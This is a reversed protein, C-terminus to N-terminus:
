RLDKCLPENISLRILSACLGETEDSAVVCYHSQCDDDKVCATSVKGRLQCTGTVLDESSDIVCHDTPKCQYDAECLGGTKKYVVCYEGTCFYGEDCVQAPGDCAEGAGVKEPKACVGTTAGLKAICSFGGATDCDDNKECAEGDTSTGTSLQDCPAGLKIVVALEDATLDGDEYASRVANLCESAHASSYNEPIVKQCFKNQTSVCDAKEAANCADLVAEQCANDAWADCFGSRKALPDPPADEEVKCGVPLTFALLVLALLPKRM